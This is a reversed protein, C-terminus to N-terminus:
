PHEGKIPAHRHCELVGLMIFVRREGNFRYSLYFPRPGIPWDDATFDPANMLKARYWSAISLRREGHRFLIVNFRNHCFTFYLCFLGILLAALVVLATVVLGIWFFMNIM